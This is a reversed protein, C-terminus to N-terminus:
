HVLVAGVILLVELDQCGDLRVLQRDHILGFPHAFVGADGPAPTFLRSSEKTMLKDLLLLLSADLSCLWNRLRMSECRLLDVSELLCQLLFHM